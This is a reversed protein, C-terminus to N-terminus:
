QIICQKEYFESIEKKLMNKLTLIINNTIGFSSQLNHNFGLILVKKRNFNLISRYYKGKVVNRKTTVNLEEIYNMELTTDFIKQFNDVVSQGNLICIELDSDVILNPLFDGFDNILSNKQTITLNGWKGKTAVPIIDLHVINNYPFYYSYEVDYLLNELRNFWGRYPNHNFYNDFSMQIRDIGDDSMEKWSEVKFNKKSQFRNYPEGTSDYYEKDSPNLGITAIKSNKFNGFYLIPAFDKIILESDSSDIKHLLKKIKDFIM